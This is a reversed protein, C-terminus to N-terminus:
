YGNRLDLLFVIFNAKHIGVGSNCYRYPQLIPAAAIARTTYRLRSVKRQQKDKRERDLVSEVRRGNGVAQLLYM